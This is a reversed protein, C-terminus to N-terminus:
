SAIKKPQGLLRRGTVVTGAEGGVTTTNETPALKGSTTVNLDVVQCPPVPHGAVAAIADSLKRGSALRWRRLAESSSMLHTDIFGPVAIRGGGDIERRGRNDGYTGLITDGCIAVDTKSLAGTVLDFLRVNTVVLDASTAGRGQAIRAAITASDLQASL